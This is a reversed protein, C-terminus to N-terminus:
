LFNVYWFIKKHGNLYEICVLIIAITTCTRTNGEVSKTPLAKWSQVPVTTVKHNQAITPKVLHSSCYAIPFVKNTNISCGTFYLSHINSPQLSVSEPTTSIQHIYRDSSSTCSYHKQYQLTSSTPPYRYNYINFVTLVSFLLPERKSKLPPTRPM